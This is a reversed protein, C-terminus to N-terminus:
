QQLGLGEREERMEFELEREKREHGIWRMFLFGHGIMEELGMASSGHCFAWRQLVLSGQGFDVVSWFRM